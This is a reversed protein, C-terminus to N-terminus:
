VEQGDVVTAAAQEEGIRVYFAPDGDAAPAVWWGATDTSSLTNLSARRIGHRRLVALARVIDQRAAVNDRTTTNSKM